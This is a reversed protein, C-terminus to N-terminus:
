LKGDLSYLIEKTESEGFNEEKFLPAKSILKVIRNGPYIIIDGPLVEKSFKKCSTSERIDWFTQNGSVIKKIGFEDM